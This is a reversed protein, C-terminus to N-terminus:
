MASGPVGPSRGAELIPPTLRKWTRWGLTGITSHRVRSAPLRGAAIAVANHEPHDFEWYRARVGFGDALQWGAAGRGTIEFEPDVPITAGGVVFGTGESNFPTLYLGEVEVYPGGRRCKSPCCDGCCPDCQTCCGSCPEARHGCGYGGRGHHGGGAAHGEYGNTVSQNLQAELADLRSQLDSLQANETTTAAVATVDEASVTVIEQGMAASAFGAAALVAVIALTHCTTRM